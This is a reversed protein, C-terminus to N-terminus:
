AAGPSPFLERRCLEEVFVAFSAADSPDQLVAASMAAGQLLSMVGDVAVDFRPNQQAAEPFLRRAEARLSLRHRQLVPM